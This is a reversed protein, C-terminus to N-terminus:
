GGQPVCLGEEARHELRLIVCKWSWPALASGLPLEVEEDNFACPVSPQFRVLPCFLFSNSTGPSPPAGAATALAEWEGGPSLRVCARPGTAAGDWRVSSSTPQSLHDSERM